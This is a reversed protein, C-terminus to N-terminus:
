YQPTAPNMPDTLNYVPREGDRLERRLVVARTPEKKSQIIEVYDGPVFWKVIDPDV